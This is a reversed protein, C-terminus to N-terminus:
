SVINQFIDLDMQMLVSAKSQHCSRSKNGVGWVLKVRFRNLLLSNSGSICEDSDRKKTNRKANSRGYYFVFLDEAYNCFHKKEPVRLYLIDIWFSLCTLKSSSSIFLLQPKLGCSRTVKTNESAKIDASHLSSKNNPFCPFM